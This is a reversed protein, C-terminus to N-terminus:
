KRGTAALSDRGLELRSTSSIQVGNLFTAAKLVVPAEIELIDTYMPSRATPENGNLTYRIEGSSVQQSLEVGARGSRGVGERIIISVRFAAESYGIGVKNNRPLSATLSTVFTAWRQRSYPSWAIEALAAARPFSLLEIDRENRVQDTWVNAQVGVLRRLDEVGLAVPAPDFTYVDELRVIDGTGAPEDSMAVTQARDFSLLESSGVVVEYGAASAALAGDIGRLTMALMGPADAGMSQDWGIIRRGREIGLTSLRLAFYRQLASESAIGLERMRAQVRASNRWEWSSLESGGIHIYEGPFLQTLEDMVNGIFTFTSEDANLLHTDSAPLPTSAALQPYAAIMAGAHIPMPIAPVITVNRQAAHAVIEAIQRQTYFQSSADRAALRPYKRIEIRWAADDALYWQLTNLKHLAMADILRKIFDVSQYHHASDLMLGRWRLRPSDTIHLAPIRISEEPSVDAALIQWLTTAGYFLGRVDPATLVVGRDSIDLQYSEPNAGIGSKQLTFRIVKKLPTSNQLQVIVPRLQRTRFLLDGFYHAVSIAAPNDDVVLQTEGHVTFTDGTLELSSPTPIIAPERGRDAAAHAWGAGCLLWVMLTPVTAKM